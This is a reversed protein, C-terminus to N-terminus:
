LDTLDIEGSARRHTNALPTELGLERCSPADAEPTAHQAAPFYLHFACGQGPATELEIVGGVREVIDKLMALGQGTGHDKTTYLPEFARARVEDPMGPGDDIVSLRAWAGARGEPAASATCIRVGQGAELVVAANTILNMVGGLLTGEDLDIEPCPGAEINLYVGTPLHGSLYARAQALFANLAIHTPPPTPTIASLRKIYAEGHRLAEDLARLEVEVGEGRWDAARRAAEIRAFNAQFRAASQPTIYPMLRLLTLGRLQAELADHKEVMAARRAIEAELAAQGRAVDALLAAREAGRRALRACLRQYVGDVRLGRAILLLCLLGSLALSPPRPAAGLLDPHDMMLFHLGGGVIFVGYGLALARRERAHGEADGLGRRGRRLGYLMVAAGWCLVALRALESGAPGYLYGQTSPLPADGLLDTRWELLSILAAPAVGLAIFGWRDVRGPAQEGRGYTLGLHLLMLPVIPWLKIWRRFLDIEDTSHSTRYGFDCLTIYGIALALAAFSRNVARTPNIALVRASLYIAGIFASLSILAWAYPLADSM